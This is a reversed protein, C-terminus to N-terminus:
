AEGKTSEWHWAITGNVVVRELAVGDQRALQRLHAVLPEVSQPALKYDRVWIAAKGGPRQSVRLLREPWPQDAAVLPGLTRALREISHSPEDATSALGELAVPWPAMDTHAPEGIPASPMQALAESRTAAAFAENPLASAVGTATSAHPQDAESLFSLYGNAFWHQEFLRARTAADAITVPAHRLTHLPTDAQLTAADEVHDSPAEALARPVGPRTATNESGASAQPEEALPKGEDRRGGQEGVAPKDSRLHDLFDAGHGRDADAKEAARVPPLHPTHLDIRTM